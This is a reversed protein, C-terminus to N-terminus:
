IKRNKRIMPIFDIFYVIGTPIIESYLLGGYYRDTLFVSWQVAFVKYLFNGFICLAGPAMKGKQSETEPATWEVELGPEQRNNFSARTDSSATREAAARM